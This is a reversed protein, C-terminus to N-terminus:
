TYQFIVLRKILAPDAGFLIQLVPVLTWLANALIEGVILGLFLPMSLRYARAGGYKVMLTKITWGLFLSIVLRLGISSYVFILGIPHLPWGPLRACLFLLLAALGAGFIMAKLQGRDMSYTRGVVVDQISNM